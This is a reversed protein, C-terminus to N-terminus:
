SWAMQFVKHKVSMMGTKPHFMVLHHNWGMCCFCIPIRSGTAGLLFRFMWQSVRVQDVATTEERYPNAAAVLFLNPYRLPLHYPVQIALQWVTSWITNSGHSELVPMWQLLFFFFFMLIKSILREFVTSWLFHYQSVMKPITAPVWAVSTEIWKNSLRCHDVIYCSPYVPCHYYWGLEYTIVYVKVLLSTATAKLQLALFMWQFMGRIDCCFSEQWAKVFWIM